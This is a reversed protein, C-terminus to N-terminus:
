HLVLHQDEEHSGAERADADPPEQFSQPTEAVRQLEQPKTSATAAAKRKSYQLLPLLPMMLLFVIAMLKFAEVFALM